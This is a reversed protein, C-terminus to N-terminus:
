LLPLEEEDHEEESESKEVLEDDRTLRSLGTALMSSIRQMRHARKVSIVDVSVGAIYPM